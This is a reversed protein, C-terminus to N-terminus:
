QPESCQYWVTATTVGGTGFGIVLQTTSISNIDGTTALVNDSEICVPTKAWPTAFTMTVSTLATGAVAISGSNDNSPSNMSSTGGSVTPQKGGTVIHGLNDVEFTTSGTSSAAIFIPLTSATSSGQVFLTAANTTTGIAATNSATLTMTNIGNNVFGLAFNSPQWMGTKQSNNAFGYTPNSITGAGSELFFSNLSNTNNTNFASNVFNYNTPAVTFVIESGIDGISDSLSNNFKYSGGTLFTTASSTGVVVLPFAPTTTGIGLVNAITSTGTTTASTFAGAASITNLGSIIGSDAVTLATGGHLTAVTFSGGNVLFNTNTFAIGNNFKWNNGSDMSITGNGSSSTNNFSIGQSNDLLIGGGAVYLKAQDLLSGISVDGDPLVQFLSSTAGTSSTSSAIAFLPTTSGYKGQVSLKAFPTTTGIAVNDSSTANYIFKNGITFASNGSGGGCSTSIIKGTSDTALCSASKVNEDTIDGNIDLATAPSNQMVGLYGGFDSFNNTNDMDMCLVPSNGEAISGFEMENSSVSCPYFGGRTELRINASGNNTIFAFDGVAIDSGTTDLQFGNLGSHNGIILKSTGYSDNNNAIVTETNMGTILTEPVTGEDPNAYDPYTVELSPTNPQSNGSYDTQQYFTPQASTDFSVLNLGGQGFINGGSTNLSNATLNGSGDTILSSLGGFAGSNNYQIDSNSGGPSGGSPSTTAIVNGSSDVALFTKTLNTLRIGSLTSTATVTLGTSSATVLTTQGIARLTGTAIVSGFTGIGALLNSGTTLSTSASVNTFFNTGSFGLSSTAVWQTAPGSVAELIQGPTGASLTGDTYAGTNTVSGFNGGPSLSLGSGTDTGFISPAVVLGQGVFVEAAGTGFSSSQTSSTGVFYPSMVSSTAVITKALLVSGTTLTTTAASNTFYNTGGGASGCPTTSAVYNGTTTSILCYGAGPAAPVTVQDAYAISALTFFSVGLFISLKKIYTKKM